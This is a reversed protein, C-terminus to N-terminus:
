RPRPRSACCKAVRSRVRRLLQTSASYHSAPWRFPIGRFSSSRLFMVVALAFGALNVAFFPASPLLGVFPAALLSYLPPYWHLRPDLDGAAFARASRLYMGQDFWSAGYSTASAQKITALVYLAAFFVVAAAFRHREFRDATVIERLM